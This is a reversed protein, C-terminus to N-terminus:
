NGQRGPPEYAPVGSGRGEGGQGERGSGARQPGRPPVRAARQPPPPRVGRRGAETRVMPPSYRWRNPSRWDGRQYWAFRSPGTRGFWPSPGYGWVWPAAVWTWGYSGTFVFELPEGFGNSPVFTNQAGYTMWIWGYQQTFVWQGSPLPQGPPQVAQGEAVQADTTACAPALAVAGALLLTTVTRVGM